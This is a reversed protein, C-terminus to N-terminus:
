LTRVWPEHCWGTHPFAGPCVWAGLLYARPKATGSFARLAELVCPGAGGVRPCAAGQHLCSVHGGGIQWSVQTGGAVM